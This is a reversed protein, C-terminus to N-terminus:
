SHTLVPLDYAVLVLLVNMCYVPHYSCFVLDHSFFFATLM